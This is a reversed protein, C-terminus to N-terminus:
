LRITNGNLSPKEVTLVPSAPATTDINVASATGANSTNGYGDIAYISYVYEGDPVNIETNGTVSGAVNSSVVATTTGNNREIRFHDTGSPIDWSLRITNGNLSPKEVTLVPSAPAITDINETASQGANSTTGNSNIAYISYVYAGDGLGADTYSTVSADINSSVTEADAGDKSRKLLFQSVGAPADWSLTISSDNSATKSALLTPASPATTASATVALGYFRDITENFISYYYTTNSSLGSDVYSSGTNAAIVPTGDTATTPFGSMSRRITVGRFDSGSAGSAWNLAVSAASGIASFETVANIPSYVQVAGDNTLAYLEGAPNLGFGVLNNSYTKTWLLTPAGSTVATYKRISSSIGIYVAGNTAMITNVNVASAGVSGLLTDTASSFDTSVRFASTGSNSLYYYNNSPSIAARIPTTSIPTGTGANSIMGDYNTLISNRSSYIRNNNGMAIAGTGTVNLTAVLNATTNTIDFRLLRGNIGSTTSLYMINNATVVFDIQTPTPFTVSYNISSYTAGDPSLRGFSSPSLNVVYMTGDQSVQVKKVSSAVGSPVTASMTNKFVLAGHVPLSIGAWLGFILLLLVPRRAFLFDKTLVYFDNLDHWM